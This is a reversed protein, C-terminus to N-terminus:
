SAAEDQNIKTHKIRENVVHFAKGVGKKAVIKLPLPAKTLKKMLFAVVKTEALTLFLGQVLNFLSEVQDIGRDVERSIQRVQSNADELLTAIQPLEEFLLEEYDKLVKHRLFWFGMAILLSLVCYIYVGISLSSFWSLHDHM